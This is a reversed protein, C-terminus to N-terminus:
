GVHEWWIFKGYQTSTKLVINTTLIDMWWSHFCCFPIFFALYNDKIHQFSNTKFLPLVSSWSNSPFRDLILFNNPQWWFNLMYWLSLLCLRLDLVAVSISPVSGCQDKFDSVLLPRFSGFVRIEKSGLCVCSEGMM